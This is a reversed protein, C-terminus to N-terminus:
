GSELAKKSLWTKFDSSTLRKEERTRMQKLNVMGQEMEKPGIIVAYPIKATDVYELQKRLSRQKLDMDCSIGMSRAEQVLKIVYGRTQNNVSVFFIRFTGEFDPLLNLRNLSLFLREIGGAAGTCPLEHKGYLRGLRDYRGGGLIAGVNVGGTDYAERCM